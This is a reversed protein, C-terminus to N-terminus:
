LLKHIWGPGPPPPPGFGPGARPGPDLADQRGDAHSLIAAHLAGRDLRGQVTVTEGSTVLTADEGAPGTDVLAKGSADAVIFRNGFVDTVQGTVAGPSGDKLSAIPAPTMALVVTSRRGDAVHVAVGGVGFAVLALAALRARRLGRLPRPSSSPLIPADPSPM